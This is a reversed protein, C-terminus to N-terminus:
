SVLRIRKAIEVARADRVQAYIRTTETSTHGLLKAADDLSIGANVITQAFTHRLSYPVAGRRKLIARLGAPTYPAGYRSRFVIGHRKEPPIEDLVALAQDTLYLTRTAGTAEATKHEALIAVRLDIRVQDWKLGCAEGPRCGTYAIFRLARGARKPLAALIERLAEPTLDRPKRVPRPLKLKEPAHALYAREYGWLLVARATKIYHGITRASLSRTRKTERGRAFRYGRLHLLYRTLLDRGVDDVHSAGAFRVFEALWRGYLPKDQIAMWRTVIEAVYSPADSAIVRAAIEAMKRHFAVRAAQEDAGFYYMAGGIKSRWTGCNLHLRSPRGM